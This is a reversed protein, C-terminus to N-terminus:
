DVNSQLTLAQHDDFAENNLFKIADHISLFFHTEGIKSRMNTRRLIDRVPGKVNTMLFLINRKHYDDVLDSLAHVASSDLGNIGSADLIVARLSERKAEMTRLRDQFYRTNAFFLRADLRVILVDARPNIHEFRDINLFKRSANDMGLEAIHPYSVHILLGIISVGVGVIIGQEIGLFLTSLGTILYMIFDKKDTRWLHKGEKIDILGFVAVLIIAALIAQPLLKFYPTLFLLTLLVICASIIAALGTKAGSQDNVASRAFGGMVPFGQFFSGAINAAGLGILEQSANVEYDKHKKQLSKAVAISETYGILAITLAIPLLSIIADTSINPLAFSPIGSPIENIIAVQYQQLDFLYSAGLGLIVIILPFPLKRNLKRLLIIGIVSASGVLLTIHNIKGLSHYLHYINEYFKGRPISVGFLYKLQSVAIIIAAATTFGSIVPHSLFNVIFGMRFIGMVFLIVGVMLALLISLQVFTESNTDALAGVGSAILLSVMAVPGVALQRSTGFIAYIILPITSAYLGYIPDLGALLAYAMGQPILMIGVTIGAVLDSSLNAKKYNGLWEIIPLFKRM